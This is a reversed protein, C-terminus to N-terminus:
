RDLLGNTRSLKGPGELGLWRLLSVLVALWPMRHQLSMIENVFTWIHMSILAKPPEAVSIKSLGEVKLGLSFQLNPGTSPQMGTTRRDHPSLHLVALFFGQLLAGLVAISQLTAWFVLSATSLRSQHRSYLGTTDSSVSSLLGFTELRDVTTTTGTQPRTHPQLTYILKTAGEWLLWPECTRKLIANHVITGTFVECVLVRLCPNVLDEPPLVLPVIADVLCQCWAEEDSHDILASRGDRVPVPLANHPRLNDYIEDM